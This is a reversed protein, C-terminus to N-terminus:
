IAEIHLGRRRREQRRVDDILDAVYDVRDIGELTLKPHSRDSSTIVIKGVGLMRQIIGQSYTVDDIDIVEIRDTTRHLLGSAHLFRQTTLEYSISLKKYALVLAVLVWAILILAVLILWVGPFFVTAVILAISALATLVWSGFMAKGSYTGTWLQEEKEDDVRRHASDAFKSVPSTGDDARRGGGGADADTSWFPQYMTEAPTPAGCFRLLM